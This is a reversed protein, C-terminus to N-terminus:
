LKLEFLEWSGRIVRLEDTELLGSTPVGVEAGRRRREFEALKSCIFASSGSDGSVLPLGVSGTM